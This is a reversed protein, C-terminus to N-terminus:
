ALIALTMFLGGSIISHLSILPVKFPWLASVLGIYWAFVLAALIMQYLPHSSAVVPILSLLFGRPVLLPGFFYRDTRFRLHLFCTAKVFAEGYQHSMRPAALALFCYSSWFLLAIALLILGFAMMGKHESTGCLVMPFRVLSGM